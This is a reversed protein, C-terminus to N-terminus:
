SAEKVAISRVIIPSTSLASEDGMEWVLDLKGHDLAEVLQELNRGTITVTDTVAQIIIEESSYSKRYKWRSLSRYPYSYTVSNWKDTKQLRIVQPSEHNYAIRGWPGSFPSDDSASEAGQKTKLPM